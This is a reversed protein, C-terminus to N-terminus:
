AARRACDYLNKWRGADQEAQELQAQRGQERLYRRSMASLDAATLRTVPIGLEMLWTKVQAIFDQVWKAVAQPLSRPANEYQEIAYAALENLYTERDARDKAPIREEAERFWKGASGNKLAKDILSLRNM